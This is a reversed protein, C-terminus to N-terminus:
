RGRAVRTPGVLLAEHFRRLFEDSHAVLAESAVEYASVYVEHNLNRTLAYIEEDTMSRTADQMRGLAIGTAFADAEAPALPEARLWQMVFPLMNRAIYREVQMTNTAESLWTLAQYRWSSLASAERARTALQESSLRGTTGLAVVFGNIEPQVYAMRTTRLWLESSRATISQAVDLQTAANKAAERLAPVDVRRAAPMDMFAATNSLVTELSQQFRMGTYTSWGLGDIVSTSAYHQARLQDIRSAEPPRVLQPLEPIDLRKTSIEPLAAAAGGAGPGGGVTAGQASSADSGPGNGANEFRISPHSQRADYEPGRSPSCAAIGLTSALVAVHVWCSSGNSNM